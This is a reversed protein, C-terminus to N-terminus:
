DILLMLCSISHGGIHETLFDTLENLAVGLSGQSGFRKNPTFSDDRGGAFHNARAFQLQHDFCGKIAPQSGTPEISFEFLFQGLKEADFVENGDVRAGRGVQNGEACQGGGLQTVTGDFFTVFDNAHSCAEGGGDVGDDLEPRYRDEDIDVHRGVVNIGLQDFRGDGGLGLRDHEGVGKTVREVQAFDFGQTFLVVEPQDFIAAICETRGIVAFQNAGKAVDRGQTEVRGVVDGHTFTARHEGIVSLELRNGFGETVPSAVAVACGTAIIGAAVTEALLEAAQWLTVIVLVHIGM